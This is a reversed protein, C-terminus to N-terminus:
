FPSDESERPLHKKIDDPNGVSSNVSINSTKVEKYIDNKINSHILGNLTTDAQYIDNTNIFSFPM